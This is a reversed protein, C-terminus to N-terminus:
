TGTEQCTDGARYRANLALLIAASEADFSGTIAGARFHAQFASIALWPRQSEVPYGYDALAKLLADPAPM